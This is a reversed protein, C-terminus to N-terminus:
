LLWCWWSQGEVDWCSSWRNYQAEHWGFQGALSFCINSLYVLASVQADLGGKTRLFRVLFMIWLFLFDSSVLFAWNNGLHLTETCLYTASKVYGLYTSSLTPLLTAHLMIPSPIRQSLNLWSMLLLPRLPSLATTYKPGAQKSFGPFSQLNIEDTFNHLNKNM